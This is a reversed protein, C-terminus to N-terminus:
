KGHNQLIRDLGPSRTRRAKQEQEAEWIATLASEINSTVDNNWFRLVRYGKSEFYATHERDYKDQELHRSGGM